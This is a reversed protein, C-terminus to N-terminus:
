RGLMLSLGRRVGADVLEQASLRRDIRRRQCDAEVDMVRLGSGPPEVLLRAGDTVRLVLAGLTWLTARAVFPRREERCFIMDQRSLSADLIMVVDANLARARQLALGQDIGEFPTSGPRSARRASVTVDVPLIGEANLGDLFAIEFADPISSQERSSFEGEGVFGTRELSVQLVVM